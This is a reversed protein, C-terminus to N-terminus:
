SYTSTEFAPANMRPVGNGLLYQTEQTVFRNFFNSCLKYNASYNDPVAQGSMTYLLKQYQMITTNRKRDYDDATQSILYAPSNKHKTVSSFVFQMRATDNDGVKLLDQYTIM